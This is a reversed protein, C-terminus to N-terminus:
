SVTKLVTCSIFAHAVLMRCSPEIEEAAVDPVEGLRTYLTHILQGLIEDSSLPPVAEELDNYLSRIFRTVREAVRPETNNIAAYAGEVAHGYTGYHEIFKRYRTVGNFTLKDQVESPNGFARRADADVIEDLKRIVRLLNLPKARAATPITVNLDGGIQVNGDGHIEQRRDGM